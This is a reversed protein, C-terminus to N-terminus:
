NVITVKFEETHSGAKATVIVIGAKKAKLMGTKPNIVALNTDSIQYIIKNKIGYTSVNFDFSRNVQISAQKKTFSIYPAKITVKIKKVLSGAKATVYLTGTQKVALRGTAKNIAGLKSDSISYAIKNDM